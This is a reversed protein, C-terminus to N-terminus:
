RLTNPIFLEGEEITDIDVVGLEVPQHYTGNFPMYQWDVLAGVAKLNESLMGSVADCAEAENDAEFAIQVTALFIKKQM